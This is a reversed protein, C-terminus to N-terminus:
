YESPYYVTTYCYDFCNHIVNQQHQYYGSTTIWVIQNSKLKYISQIRDGNKHERTYENSKVDEKYLENLLGYDYNIHRKLLQIIERINNEYDKKIYSDIGATFVICGFEPPLSKRFSILEENLKIAKQTPTEM